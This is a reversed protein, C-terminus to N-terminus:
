KRSVVEPAGAAPGTEQFERRLVEILALTVAVAVPGLVVGLPGFVIIGGLVAFFIVVTHLTTRRGILIPRLFNDITGVVGAGWALLFLGKGIHGQALLILAAPLWIVTAGVMPIFALFVMVVTWILPSPIGVIWFALGALGGQVIAVVGNGYITGIILDQAQTFVEHADERSLPVLQELKDVIVRSDRFLFFMTFIVLVVNFILRGVGRIVGGSQAILFDGVQQIHDTVYQEVQQPDVRAVRGVQKAAGQLLFSFDTGGGGQAQAKAKAAQYFQNLEQGVIGGVFILPLIIFGVVVITSLLARLSPSRILRAMKEHLPQFLIVLIAAGCIAMLFPAVMLYCLYVMVGAAGFLLFTILQERRM